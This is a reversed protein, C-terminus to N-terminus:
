FNYRLGLGGQPMIFTREENVKAFLSVEGFCSFPMHPFAFEVGIIVEPGLDITKIENRVLQPSEDSTFYDYRADIIRMQAGFGFYWDMGEVGKPLFSHMLVRAQVSYASLVQHGASKHGDVGINESFVEEHFNGNIGGMANGASIEAAFRKLLYFKVTLGLPDGVRLGIGGTYNKKQMVVCTYDQNKATYRRQAGANATLCFVIACLFIYRYTYM